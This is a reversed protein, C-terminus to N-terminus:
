PSPSRPSTLPNRQLPLRRAAVENALWVANPECRELTCGGIRDGPQVVQGNIVALRRGPQVWVASLQFQHLAPLPDPPPEHRVPPEIVFPDRGDALWADVMSELVRLSATSSVLDSRFALVPDLAPVLTTRPAESEPRRDLSSERIGRGLGMAMIALAIATLGRLTAANKM